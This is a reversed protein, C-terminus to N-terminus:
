SEFVADAISQDLSNLFDDTLEDMRNNVHEATLDLGESDTMHQLGEKVVVDRHRILVYTKWIPSAEGFQELLLRPYTAETNIWYIRKAVDAPRQYLTPYRAGLELTRGDGSESLPDADIGAVLVQPYLSARRAQDGRGGGDELPDDGSDKKSNGSSRKGRQEGSVGGGGGTGGFGSGAGPGGSIESYFNRLFRQAYRNIMRTLQATAAAQLERREKANYSAVSRAVSGIHGGAWSLLASTKPSQILRERENEVLSEGEAEVGPCTFAAMLFESGEIQRLPLSDIPYSAVVAVRGVVDMRNFARLRASLAQDAIQIKLQGAKKGSGFIYAEDDSELTTPIPVEVTKIDPHLRPSEPLLRASRLDDNHWVSVSMQPLLPLMQPSRRLWELVNGTQTQVGAGKARIGEVVTFGTDGRELSILAEDPIRDHKLGAISMAEALECARGKRGEVWGYRRETDFGFQSIQGDLWTTIRSERFMQRMYFKGGNGHGGLIALRENPIGGTAAQMDFWRKFARDIDEPSMGCFDIVRVGRFTRASGAFELIAHTFGLPRKTANRRQYADWSNKIWEVVGKHHTFSFSRGILEVADEAAVEYPEPQIAM